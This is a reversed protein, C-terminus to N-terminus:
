HLHAIPASLSTKKVSISPNYLSILSLDEKIELSVALSASSSIPSPKIPPPISGLNFLQVEAM